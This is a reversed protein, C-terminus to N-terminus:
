REPCHSNTGKTDSFVGIAWRDGCKDAHV